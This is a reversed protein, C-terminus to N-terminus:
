AFNAFSTWTEHPLPFFLQLGFSGILGVTALACVVLFNPDRIFNLIVRWQGEM